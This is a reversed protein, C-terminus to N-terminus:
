NEGAKNEFTGEVFSSDDLKNLMDLEEGTAAQKNKCYLTYDVKPMTTPMKLKKYEKKWRGVDPEESSYLAPSWAKCLRAHSIMPPNDAWDREEKFVNKAIRSNTCFMRNAERPTMGQTETKIADCYQSKARGMKFRHMLFPLEKGTGSRINPFQIGMGCFAMYREYPSFNRANNTVIAQMLEVTDEQLFKTQNSGLGLRDMFISTESAASDGCTPPFNQNKIKQGWTLLNNDFDTVDILKSNCVPLNILSRNLNLMYDFSLPDSEGIVLPRIGKAGFEFYNDVSDRLVQQIDLNHHKLADIGILAKERNDHQRSTWCQAQAVTKQVPDCMRSQLNWWNSQPACRSNYEKEDPYHAMKIYCQSNTLAYSVYLEEYMQAVNGQYISLGASMQEMARKANPRGIIAAVMSFGSEPANGMLVAQMTAESILQLAPFLKGVHAQMQDKRVATEDNLDCIGEAYSNDMRLEFDEGMSVSKSSSGKKLKHIAIGLKIMQQQVTILFAATGGTGIGWNMGNDVPGMATSVMTRLRDWELAVLTEYVHCIIKAELSTTPTFSNVLSPVKTMLTTKATELNDHQVSLVKVFSDIREFVFNVKRSMEMAREPSPYHRMFHDIIREPGPKKNCGRHVLSCDFTTTLSMIKVGFFRAEGLAAYEDPFERAKRVIWENLWKTTGSNEFNDGVDDFYSPLYTGRRYWYEVAQAADNTTSITSTLTANIPSAHGQALFYLAVWAASLGVRKISVM